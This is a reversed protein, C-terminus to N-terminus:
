SKSIHRATTVTSQIVLIDAGAEKAVMSLHKTNAPILSIACTAGARKITQIREGILEYKVPESYIKQLLSTVENDPARVIETLIEEPKKYRAQVGDLNLVALGGLKHMLIAFNPDVAADMAASVIPISFTFNGNKFETNTQDPNVTVDGPVIAVEEFGYARQMDKFKPAAM